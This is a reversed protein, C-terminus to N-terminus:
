IIVINIFNELINLMLQLFYGIDNDENCNKIFNESFKSMYQVMEFGVVVLNQSVAWGYLNYM